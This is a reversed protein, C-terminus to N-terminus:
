ICGQVVTISQVSRNLQWDADCHKHQKIKCQMLTRMAAFCKRWQARMRYASLATWAGWSISDMQFQGAECVFRNVQMPANRATVDVSMSYSETPRELRLRYLDNCKLTKHSHWPLVVVVIPAISCEAAVNIHSVFTRCIKCRFPFQMPSMSHTLPLELFKASYVRGLCTAKSRTSLRPAFVVQHLFQAKM